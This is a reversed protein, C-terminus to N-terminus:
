LSLPFRTRRANGIIDLSIPSSEPCIRKLSVMIRVSLKYDVIVASRVIGSYEIEAIRKLESLEPM